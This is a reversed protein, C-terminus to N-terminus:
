FKGSIRRKKPFGFRSYFEILEQQYGANDKAEYYTNKISSASFPLRKAIRYFVDEGKLLSNELTDYEMLIRTPWRMGTAPDIGQKSNASRPDGPNIALKQKGSYVCTLLQKLMRGAWRTAYPDIDPYQLRLSALELLAHDRDKGDPDASTDANIVYSELREMQTKIDDLKSM